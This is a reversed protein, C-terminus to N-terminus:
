TAAHAAAPPAGWLHPSRAVLHGLAAARIEAEVHLAAVAVVARPCRANAVAAARDALSCSPDTAIRALLQPPAAPHKAAKRTSGLGWAAAEIREPPCNPSDLANWDSLIKFAGKAAGPPYVPNGAAHRRVEPEPDAALRLAIESSCAESSAVAARVETSDDRSLADVLDASCEPNSAAAARLSAEESSALRRVLNPPCIPNTAAAARIRWPHDVGDADVPACLIEFAEPSCGPNSALTLRVQVSASRALTAAAAAPCAPNCAAARAEHHQGGAVAAIARPPCFRNALAAVRVSMEPDASATALAARSRAAVAAHLRITDSRLNALRLSVADPKAPSAVALLSCGNPGFRVSLRALSRPDGSHRELAIAVEDIDDDHPIAARARAAGSAFRVAPSPDEALVASVAAWRASSAAASARITTDECSALVAAAAACRGRPRRGALLAQELSGISCGGAAAVASSRVRPASRVARAAAHVFRSPGM